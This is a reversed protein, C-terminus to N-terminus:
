SLMKIEEKMSDVWVQEKSPAAYSEPEISTFNCSEYIKSLARFRRPSTDPSSPQDNPALTELREEVQEIVPVHVTLDPEHEEEWKWTSHKDFQVDKSTVLQQTELNFIQFGKSQSSYGLFIGKESKEELKHRKQEPVHIYCLCGFVRFHNVTPKHGSWAEIPTMDKMAKTPCRNLVYVATNVPGSKKKPIGNAM